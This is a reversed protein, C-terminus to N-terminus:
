ASNMSQKNINVIVLFTCTYLLYDTRVQLHAEEQLVTARVFYSQIFTWVHAALHQLHAIVAGVDLVTETHRVNVRAIHNVAVPQQVVLGVVPPPGVVQSGALVAPVAVPAASTRPDAREPSDSVEVLLKGGGEKTERNGIFMSALVTCM